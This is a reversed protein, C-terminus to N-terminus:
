YDSRTQHKLKLFNKLSNDHKDRHRRFTIKIEGEYVKSQESKIKMNNGTENRSNDSKWEQDENNRTKMSFGSAQIYWM